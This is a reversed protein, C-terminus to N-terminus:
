KPMGSGLLLLGALQFPSTIIDVPVTVAYWAYMGALTMRSRVGWEVDSFVENYNTGPAQSFYMVEGNKEWYPHMASFSYINTFDMVLMAAPYDIPGTDFQFHQSMMAALDAKDGGKLFLVSRFARDDLCCANQQVLFVRQGDASRKNSEYFRVGQPGSEVNLYRGAGILIEDFQMVPKAGGKVLRGTLVRYNKNGALPRDFENIPSKYEDIAKNNKFTLCGPLAPLIGLIM